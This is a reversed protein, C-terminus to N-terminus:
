PTHMYCKDETQRVVKKEADTRHRGVSWIVVGIRLGGHATVFVRLAEGVRRGWEFHPISPNSQSLAIEWWDAM